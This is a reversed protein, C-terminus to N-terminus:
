FEFWHECMDCLAFSRYAVGPISFGRYEMRRHGCRDCPTSEAAVADLGKLIPKYGGALLERRAGDM